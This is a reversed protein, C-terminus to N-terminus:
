YMTTSVSFGKIVLTPTSQEQKYELTFTVVDSRASVSKGGGYYITVEAWIKVTYTGPAPTGLISIMRPESWLLPERTEPMRSMDHLRATFYEIVVDNSTTKYFSALTQPSGNNVTYMVKIYYTYQDVNQKSVTLTISGSLYEVKRNNYYLSLPSFKQERVIPVTENNEDILYLTMTGKFIDGKVDLKISSVIQYGFLFLVLIGIVIMITIIKANM